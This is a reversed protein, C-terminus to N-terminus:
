SKASANVLSMVREFFDQRTAGTLTFNPGYSVRYNINKWTEFLSEPAVIVSGAPWYARNNM